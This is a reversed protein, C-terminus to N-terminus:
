IIIVGNFIIANGAISMNKSSVDLMTVLSQIKTSPLMSDLDYMLDMTEQLFRSHIFKTEEDMDEIKSTLTKTKDETMYIGDTIAEPFIETYDDNSEKVRTTSIISGNPNVRVDQFWLKNYSDDPNQSNHVILRDSMNSASNTINEKEWEDPNWTSSSNDVICTYIVFRKEDPDYKIVVDGRNYENGPEYPNLDRDAFIFSHMLQMLDYNQTDRLDKIFHLAM